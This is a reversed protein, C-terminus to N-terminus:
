RLSYIARVKNDILVLAVSNGQSIDEINVITRTDVQGSSKFSIRVSKADSSLVYSEGDVVISTGDKKIFKGCVSKFNEDENKI